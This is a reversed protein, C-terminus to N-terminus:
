YTVDLTYTLTYAGAEPLGGVVDVMGGVAVTAKDGRPNLQVTESGLMPTFIVGPISTDDASLELNATGVPGTIDFLGQASSGGGFICNVGSRNGEPDIGCDGNSTIDIDGLDLGQVETITIPHVLNFSATGTGSEAMANYSLLFAAAALGSIAVINKM